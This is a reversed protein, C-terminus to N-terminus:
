WEPMPGLEKEMEALGDGEMQHSAVGHEDAVAKLEDLSAVSAALPGLTRAAVGESRLSDDELYVPWTDSNRRSLIILAVAM